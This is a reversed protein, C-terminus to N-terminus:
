YGSAFDLTSFYRAKGLTDLINDVKPLPHVDKTTVANVKRYDICFHLNGDKKHVLVVM